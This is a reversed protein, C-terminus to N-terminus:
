PRPEELTNVTAPAAFLQVEVRGREFGLQVEAAPSMAVEGDTDESADIQPVGLQFVERPGAIRPLVNGCIINAIEGLADQQQAESPSEDEGLMNAAISPLLGGCVKVVLEGAFPGKFAIRVGADVPAHRQQADMEADPFLFCLEEFTLAVAQFLETKWSNNM